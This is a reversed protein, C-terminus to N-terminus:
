GAYEGFEEMPENFGDSMAIKGEWGWAKRNQRKAQCDQVTNGPACTTVCHSETVNQFSADREFLLEYVIRFPYSRQILSSVIVNTDIIIKQM